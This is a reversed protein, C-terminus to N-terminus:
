ALLFKKYNPCGSLRSTKWYFIQLLQERPLIVVATLKEAFTESVFPRIFLTPEILIIFLINGFTLQAQLFTKKQIFKNFAFKKKVILLARFTKACTLNNKTQM